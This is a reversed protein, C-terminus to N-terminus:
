RETSISHRSVCPECAASSRRRPHSSCKPWVASLKPKSNKETPRIALLGIFPRIFFASVHGIRDGAGNLVEAEGIPDALPGGIIEHFVTSQHELFHALSCQDRLFACLRPEFTQRRGATGVNRGAGGNRGGGSRHM